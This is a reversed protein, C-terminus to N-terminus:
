AIDEILKKLKYYINSVEKPVMSDFKKQDGEILAERCKTASIDDGTRPIEFVDFNPTLDIKEAYKNVMEKYDNVRDTGCVWAVPEYGNERCIETNKVIDANSVLLVDEICDYNHAMKKYTNMLDKTLFPHKKDAKTTNIILIVSKLKRQKYVTQCCKLHGLTFPQFRGIFLCVETNNNNKM